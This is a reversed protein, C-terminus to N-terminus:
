ADRLSSGKVKRLILFSRNHETWAYIVEPISIQPAIKSIFAITKDETEM